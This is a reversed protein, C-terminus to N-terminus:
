EEPPDVSTDEPAVERVRVGKEALHRTRRRAFDEEDTGRTALVFM